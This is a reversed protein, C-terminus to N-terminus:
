HPRNPQILNAIDRASEALPKLALIVILLAVVLSAILAITKLPHTTTGTATEGQDADPARELRAARGPQHEVVTVSPSRDLNTSQAVPLIESTLIESPTQAEYTLVAYGAQRRTSAGLKTIGAVIHNNVTGEAIGLEHAIEPTTKGQGVLRLCRLQQASLSSVLRSDGM